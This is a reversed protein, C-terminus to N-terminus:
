IAVAGLSTSEGTGSRALDADRARRRPTTACPMCGYSGRTTAAHARLLTSWHCMPRSWRLALHFGLVPRRLGCRLRRGLPGVVWALGAPWVSRPGCAAGGLAVLGSPDHRGHRAGCSVVSRSWWRGRRAPEVVPRGLRWRRSVRTVGVGAIGLRSPVLLAVGRRSVVLRSVSVPAVALRAVVLGATLRGAIATIRRLAVSSRSGGLLGAVRARVVGLGTIALAIVASPLVRRRGVALLVVGRLRVPLRPIRC